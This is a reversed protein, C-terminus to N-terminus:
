RRLRARIFSLVCLIVFVLCVAATALLAQHSQSRLNLEGKYALWGFRGTGALMGLAFSRIM